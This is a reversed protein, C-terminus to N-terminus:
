KGTKWTTANLSENYRMLKFFPTNAGDALTPNLTGKADTQYTSGTENTRYYANKGGKNYQKPCAQVARVVADANTTDPATTQQTTSCLYSFCYAKYGTANLLTGTYDVGATASYGVSNTDNPHQATMSWVSPDLYDKLQNYTPLDGLATQASSVETMCTSCAAKAATQNANTRAKLLNPIAIAAIIAIIAIVIMLEILTFGKRM